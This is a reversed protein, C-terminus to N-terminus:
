WDCFESAETRLEWNGRNGCSHNKCIKPKTYRFQQVVDDQITNCAMCIFSGLTLEPRVETTRTITGSVTMLKGIRESKLQRIRTTNLLPSMTHM